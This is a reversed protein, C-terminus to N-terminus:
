ITYKCPFACVCSYFYCLTGYLQKMHANKSLKNRKNVIIKPVCYMKMVSIAIVRWLRMGKLIRNSPPNLTGNIEHRWRPLLEIFAEELLSNKMEFLELLHKIREKAESHLPDFSKNSRDILDTEKNAYSEEELKSKYMLLNEKNVDVLNRMDLLLSNIMDPNKIYLNNNLDIPSPIGTDDGKALSQLLKPKNNSLKYNTQSTNGVLSYKPSDADADDEINEVMLVSQTSIRENTNSNTPNSHTQYTMVPSKAAHRRNTKQNRNRSVLNFSDNRILSSGQNNKSVLNVDDIGNFKTDSM